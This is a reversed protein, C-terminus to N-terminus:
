LVKKVFDTAYTVNISDGGVAIVTGLTISIAGTAYNITGFSGGFGVLNGTGDIDRLVEVPAGAEAALSARVELKFPRIPIGAASLTAAYTQTAAVTPGIDETLQDGAFGSPFTTPAADSPAINDGATVNM